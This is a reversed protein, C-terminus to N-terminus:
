RVRPTRRDDRDSLYECAARKTPFLSGIEHDHALERIAVLAERYTAAAAVTERYTTGSVEALKWFWGIIPRGSEGRELDGDERYRAVIAFIEPDSTAYIYTGAGAVTM